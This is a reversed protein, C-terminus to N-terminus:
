ILTCCNVPYQVGRGTHKPGVSLWLGLDKVVLRLLVLQERQQSHSIGESKDALIHCLSVVADIFVDILPVETFQRLYQSSM